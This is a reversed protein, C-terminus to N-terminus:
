GSVFFFCFCICLVLVSSSCSPFILLVNRGYMPHTSDIHFHHFFTCQYSLQDLSNINLYAGFHKLRPARLVSFSYGAFSNIGWSDPWSAGQSSPCQREKVTHIVTTLSKKSLTCNSAHCFVCSACIHISRHGESMLCFHWCAKFGVRPHLFFVKNM